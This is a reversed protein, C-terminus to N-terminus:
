AATESTTAVALTLGVTAAAAKWCAWAEPTRFEDVVVVTVLRLVATSVSTSLPLVPVIWTAVVCGPEVAGGVGNYTPYNTMAGSCTRHLDLFALATLGM